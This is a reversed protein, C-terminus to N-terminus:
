LRCRWATSNDALFNIGTPLTSVVQINDALDDPGDNRVQIVLQSLRGERLSGRLGQTLRLDSQTPTTALTTTVCAENNNANDDTVVVRACNTVTAASIDEAVALELVLDDIDRVPGDAVYECRLEDNATTCLWSASLSRVFRLENPLNDVIDPVQALTDGALYELGIVYRALQGTQLSGELRKSIRLDRPNSSVNQCEAPVSVSMSNAESTEQVTNNPDVTVALTDALIQVGTWTQRFRAGAALGYFASSWATNDASSGDALQVPSANFAVNAQAPGSGVNTVTFTVTCSATNAQPVFSVDEVILDPRPLPELWVVAHSVGTGERTSRQSSEPAVVRNLALWLTTNAADAGLEFLEDPTLESVRFQGDCLRADGALCRWVLKSGADQRSIVVHLVAGRLNDGLPNFTGLEDTELDAVTNAQSFASLRADGDLAVDEAQYLLVEANDSDGSSGGFGDNQSSDALHLGYGTLPQVDDMYVLVHLAQFAAPDLDAALVPRGATFVDGNSPNSFNLDDDLGTGCAGALVSATSTNFACLGAAITDGQRLSAEFSALVAASPGDVGRTPADPHNFYRDALESLSLDATVRVSPIPQEQPPADPGEFTASPKILVSEQESLLPVRVSSGASGVQKLLSARVIVTNPTLATVMVQSGSATSVPEDFRLSSAPVAEWVVEGASVGSVVAELTLTEGQVLERKPIRLELSASNLDTGSNCGILLLVAVLSSFWMQQMLRHPMLKHLMLSHPIQARSLAQQHERQQNNAILQYDSSATGASRRKM